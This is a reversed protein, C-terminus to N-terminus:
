FLTKILNLLQEYNYMKNQRCCPQIKEGKGEIEEMKQNARRKKNHEMQQQERKCM